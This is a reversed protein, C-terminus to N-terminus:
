CVSISKMIGLVSVGTLFAFAFGFLTTGLFTVGPLRRFFFFVPQPQGDLGGTFLGDRLAFGPQRCQIRGWLDREARHKM